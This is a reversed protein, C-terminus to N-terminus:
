QGAGKGQRKEQEKSFFEMFEEPAMKKLREVNITKQKAAQVQKGAMASYKKIIDLIEPDSEFEKGLHILDGDFRDIKRDDVNWNITLVGVFEGKYAAATVITNGTTNGIKVPKQNKNGHGAIAIDIGPVRKILDVTGEHGTHSLLLCIDAVKRLRPILVNLVDEPERVKVSTNGAMFSPAVVGVVAIRVGRVDKIIYPAWLPDRAEVNASLLAFGASEAMRKVLSGGHSFEREGLNLADYGM